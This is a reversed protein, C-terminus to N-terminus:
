VMLETLAGKQPVGNKKLNLDFNGYHEIPNGFANLWTTWWNGITKHGEKGYAPYQVYQGTINLRGGNGGIVVYPWEQLNAHHENGSDSFYIITTNDLMTGDGEPIAKLKKALDAVLEMHHTRIIDRAQEPTKGNCTEGHGIGHVNKDSLGLSAYNTSINDLRMTVVNTIGSILAAAALDLHAAQRVEPVKSTFKEGFPPAHKRITDGMKALKERRVQLEEFAHLYHGMKERETGPLTGNLKKIDDVMFDLLNGKLGQRVKATESNAVASGFLQEYAIDPSAQFPLERGQGVATIGPYLTGETESGMVKGRLALGVHMFPSPSLKALEADATARLITGSSHEGGTKYVGMAGFWSSHGGKCMKGSLGQVISVQDKLPELPALTAPLKHGQLSESVVGEAGELKPKLTESVLKSPIIGSSKVVFVFRHPFEKRDAGAAQLGLQGLMPSLLTAGSGLSIGKLFTRRTNM